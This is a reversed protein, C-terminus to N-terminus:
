CRRGCWPAGRPRATGVLVKNPHVAQHRNVNVSAKVTTGTAATAPGAAMLTAGSALALAVLGTAGYTRLHSM